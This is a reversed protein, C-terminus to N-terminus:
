SVYSVRNKYNQVQIHTTQANARSGEHGYKQKDNEGLKAQRERIKNDYAQVDCMGNSHSVIILYYTYGSLKSDSAAKTRRDQSVLGLLWWTSITTVIM